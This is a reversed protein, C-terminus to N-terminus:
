FQTGVNFTFSKTTDGPQKLLNKAFDIRFPGFPSNWNFGIGVSIRPKMSNGFFEEKFFSTNGLATNSASTLCAPPTPNVPSTVTSTTSAECLSSIPNIDAADVQTYLSNGLGDRQPIFM